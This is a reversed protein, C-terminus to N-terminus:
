PSPNHLQRLLSNEKRFFSTWESCFSQALLKQLPGHNSILLKKFSFCQEDALIVKGGIYHYASYDKPPNYNYAKRLRQMKGKINPKKM